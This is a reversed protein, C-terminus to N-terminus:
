EGGREIDARILGKVYKSKDVQESLKKIIDADKEKNVRIHLREFSESM